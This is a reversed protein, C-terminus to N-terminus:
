TAWAKDTAAIFGVEIFSATMVGTYIGDTLNTASVKFNELLRM